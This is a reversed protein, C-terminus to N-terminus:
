GLLDVGLIVDERIPAVALQVEIEQDEIVLITDVVGKVPVVNKNVAEMRPLLAPKAKVGPWFKNLFDESIISLAAGTDILARTPQVLQTVVMTIDLPLFIDRIKKSGNIPECLRLRRQGQFAQSNYNSNWGSTGDGPGVNRNNPGPYRVPGPGGGRQWSDGPAVGPAVGPAGGRPRWTCTRAIHGMQGCNYCSYGPPRYPGNSNVPNGSLIANGGTGPDRDGGMDNNRSPYKPQVKKVERMITTFMDRTDMDSTDEKKPTVIEAKFNRAEMLKYAEMHATVDIAEDLTSVKAQYVALRLQPEDLSACFQDKAITKMDGTLGPYALM